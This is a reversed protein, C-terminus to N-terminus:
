RPANVRNTAIFADLDAQTFRVRRGVKIATVHRKEWLERVHRPTTCLYHAAGEYDLLAGSSDHEISSAPTKRDLKSEPKIRGSKTSHSSPGPRTIMQSGEVRRM